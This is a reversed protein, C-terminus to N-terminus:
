IKTLVHAQTHIKRSTTSGGPAEECIYEAEPLIICRGTRKRELDTEGKCLLLESWKKCAQNGTKIKM